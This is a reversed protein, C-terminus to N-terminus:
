TVRLPRGWLGEGPHEMGTWRNLLGQLAEPINWSSRLLDQFTIFKRRTNYHKSNRSM